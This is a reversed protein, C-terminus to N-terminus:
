SDFVGKECLESKKSVHIAFMNTIRENLWTYKRLRGKVLMFLEYGQEKLINFLSEVTNESYSWFTLSVEFYILPKHRSLIEQAGVFVDLENGEVDVKLFDVREINRLLNDLTDVDVDIHETPFYPFYTL